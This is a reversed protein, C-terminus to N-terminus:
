QSSTSSFSRASIRAYIISSTKRTISSMENSSFVWCYLRKEEHCLHLICGQLVGLLVWRKSNQIQFSGQCPPLSSIDASTTRLHRPIYIRHLKNCHHRSSPTPTYPSSIAHPVNHTHREHGSHPAPTFLRTSISYNSMPRGSSSLSIYIHFLEFNVSPVSCLYTTAQRNQTCGIHEASNLNQNITKAKTEGGRM